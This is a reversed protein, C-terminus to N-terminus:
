EAAAQRRLASKQLTAIEGMQDGLFHKPWNRIHGNQDLQLSELKSQGRQMSCFYLATDSSKITGDAVRRQLRRLLHESHSEVLVQVGRHLAAHVIADARGSQVSPHLHIEPQELIVTSGEPVYHLLVIAPLVQSIGFGVETLLVEPLSKETRTWARHLNADQGIEQVRFNEILGIKRLWHAILEEFPKRQQGKKLDQRDGAARAALMAEVVLEGRRGVDMPRAGAWGYQRKPFERLPGLYYIRDM